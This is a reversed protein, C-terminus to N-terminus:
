QVASAGGGRPLTRRHRSGIVPRQGGLGTRRAGRLALAGLALADQRADGEVWEQNPERQHRTGVDVAVHAIARHDPGHPDRDEKARHQGAHEGAQGSAPPNTCHDGGDQQHDRVRAVEEVRDRAQRQGAQDRDQQRVERPQSGPGEQGTRGADQVDERGRENRHEEDLRENVAEGPSDEGLGGRVRGAVHRLRRAQRRSGSGVDVQQHELVIRSGIAELAEEAEVVGLEQTIQLAAAEVHRGIAARAVRMRREVQHRQELHGVQRVQGGDLGVLGALGRLPAQPQHDVAIRDEVPQM